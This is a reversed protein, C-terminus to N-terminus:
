TNKSVDALSIGGGGGGGGGKDAITLMKFGRGGRSSVDYTFVGKIFKAAAFRQFTWCARARLFGHSSNFDSYM